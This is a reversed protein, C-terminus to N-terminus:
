HETASGTPRGSICKGRMRCIQRGASQLPQPFKRRVHCRNSSTRYYAGVKMARMWPHVRRRSLVLCVLHRVVIFLFSRTTLFKVIKHSWDPIRVFLLEDSSSSATPTLLQETKHTWNRAATISRNCTLRQAQRAQERARSPRALSM